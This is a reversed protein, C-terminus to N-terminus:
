CQGILVAGVLLVACVSIKFVLFHTTKAPTRWADWLIVAVFIGYAIKAAYVLIENM